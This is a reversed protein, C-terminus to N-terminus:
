ELAKRVPGSLTLIHGDPDEFYAERTGYGMNAPRRSFNVGAKSLIAYWEDVDSVQFTLELGKTEVTHSHGEHPSHM